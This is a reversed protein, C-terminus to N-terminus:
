ISYGKVISGDSIMQFYNMSQKTLINNILTGKDFGQTEWEEELADLIEQRPKACSCGGMLENWYEDEIQEKTRQNEM